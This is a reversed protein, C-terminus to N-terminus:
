KLMIRFLIHGYYLITNKGVDVDVSGSKGGFFSHIFLLPIQIHLMSFQCIPIFIKACTAVYQKTEMQLLAWM